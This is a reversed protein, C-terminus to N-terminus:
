KDTLVVANAQKGSGLTPREEGYSFISIKDAPVKYTDILYKRVAEARREGLAIDLEPNGTNAYGEIRLAEKTLALKPGVADLVQKQSLDLDATTGQYPIAVVVTTGKDTQSYSPLAEVAGLVWMASTFVIATGATGTSFSLKHRGFSASFTSKSEATRKSFLLRFGFFLCGGGGLALLM